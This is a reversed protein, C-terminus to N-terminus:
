KVIIDNKVWQVGKVGRAIEGSRTKQAQNDVFGSLQVEGKFTKVSVALGKVDPDGLLEAKVKSTVAADDIVEGTSKNYRDGTCGTTLSSISALVVLGMSSGVLALIKKM